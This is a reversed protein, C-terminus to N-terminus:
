RMPSDPDRRQVPPRCESGDDRHRAARVLLMVTVPTTLVIFIAIAIEHIVPRAGITSFLLISAVLVFGLGLTTGLTPPHIREYFTPLRLLGLSGVLALGAGTVVLIAVLAAVLTPM